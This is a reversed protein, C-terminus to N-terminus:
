YVELWPTYGGMIDLLTYNEGGFWAEYDSMLPSYHLHLIDIRDSEIPSAYVSFGYKSLLESSKTRLIM